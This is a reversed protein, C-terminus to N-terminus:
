YNSTHITVPIPVGPLQRAIPPVGSPLTRDEVQCTVPVEPCVSVFRCIPNEFQGYTVQVQAPACFNENAPERFNENQFGFTGHRIECQDQYAKLQGMWKQFAYLRALRGDLDCQKQVSPNELCAFRVQNDSVNELDLGVKDVCEGMASITATAQFDSPSAFGAGTVGLLLGIGIGGWHAMRKM